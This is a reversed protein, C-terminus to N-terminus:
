RYRKCSKIVMKKSGFVKYKANYTLQRSTQFVNIKTYIVSINYQSCLDKQIEKFILNGSSDLLYPGTFVNSISDEIHLYGNIYIDKDFNYTRPYRYLNNNDLYM